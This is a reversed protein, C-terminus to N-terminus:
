GGNRKECLGGLGHVRKRSKPASEPLSLLCPFPLVPKRLPGDRESVSAAELDRDNQAALMAAGPSM